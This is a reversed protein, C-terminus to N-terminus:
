EVEDFLALIVVVEELHEFDVASKMLVTKETATNTSVESVIGVVIGKPYIGGIGSTIVKDGPVIDADASLYYIELLDQGEEASKVVGNDRTREILVPVGSDEDIISLVRSYSGATYVVRGVLGDASYVIMGNQIGDDSGAGITFETFWQGPSKGIVQASLYTYGGEWTDVFGLLNKLRINETYLNYYDKLENELEAIQEKLETNEKQLDASESKKEFLTDISETLGYFFRQVPAILRGAVSVPGSEEDSNATTILLTLFIICLITAIILPRNKWFRM